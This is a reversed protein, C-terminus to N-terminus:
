RGCFVGPGERVIGRRGPLCPSKGLRRGLIQTRRGATQPSAGVDESTAEVDASITGGDGSMGEGDSSVSRSGPVVGRCRWAAHRRRRLRALMKPLHRSTRLYRGATPPCRRATAPSLAAERSPAGIDASLAEVDGPPVGGDASVSRSRWVIGRCGRVILQREPGPTLCGAQGANM